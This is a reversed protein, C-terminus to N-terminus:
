RAALAAELGTDLKTALRAALKEDPDLARASNWIHRAEIRRGAMWLADGLHEAVTPDAPEAARAQELLRVAEPYNGFVFAVWGMSDIIAGNEPAAKYAQEILARAEALKQRRDLLSYGLYNLYVPNDGQLAVAERLAPEAAAWNGAQEHAAGALFMLQARMPAPADTMMAVAEAYRRAAAAQDGAQRELNALQIRDEASSDPRSMLTGLVARADDWRDLQALAAARRSAALRTWPDRDPVPQLAGLALAPQKQRLLLDATLLWAEPQRPTVFTALRAFHLAATATRDRGLDAAVRMFLQSLGDEATTVLGGLRRGALDPKAALRARAEILQPDTPGGGGLLTVARDRWAPDARAAELAAAAAAIRLRPVNAAEAAVLRSFGDAAAAWNGGLAQMQARHEALYSGTLGRADAQELLTVAAATQGRGALAWADIITGLIPTSNARPPPEQFGTRAQEVGRWSRVAAASAIATLAVLPTTAVPPAGADARARRAAELADAHRFADRADGAMIAAELARRRLMDDDPADRLAHAYRSQARAPDQGDAALRGAVYAAAATSPADTARTAFAGTAPLTMTLILILLLPAM